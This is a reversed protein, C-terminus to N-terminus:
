LPLNYRLKRVSEGGTRDYFRHAAANDAPSQRQLGTARASRAWVASADFCWPDPREGFLKDRLRDPLDSPSESISEGLLREYEVHERVLDALVGPEDATVPRVDVEAM